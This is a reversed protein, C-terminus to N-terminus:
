NLIFFISILSLLGPIGLISVISITFINIPIFINISSVIVNLGYLIVFSFIIRKVVKKIIKFM